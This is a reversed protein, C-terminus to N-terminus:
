SPREPRPYIRIQLSVSIDSYSFRYHLYHGENYKTVYWRENYVTYSTETEHSFIWDIWKQTPINYSQHSLNM